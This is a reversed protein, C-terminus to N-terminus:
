CPACAVTAIGAYELSRVFQSRPLNRLADGYNGWAWSFAYGIDFNGPSALVPLRSVRPSRRLLASLWLVGPALLLYPTLGRHRHPLGARRKGGSVLDALGQLYETTSRASTSSQQAEGADRRVPVRANNKALAPDHKGAGGGGRGGPPIYNCTPEDRGGVKPDYVYNM